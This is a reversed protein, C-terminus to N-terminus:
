ITKFRDEFVRVSVQVRENLDFFATHEQGYRQIYDFLIGESLDDNVAAFRQGAVGMSDWDALREGSKDYVADLGLAGSYADPVLRLWGAEPLEKRVGRVLRECILEWHDERARNVRDQQKEILAELDEDSVAELLEM